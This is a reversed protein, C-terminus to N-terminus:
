LQVQVEVCLCSFAVPLRKLPKFAFYIYQILCSVGEGVSFFAFEGSGEAAVVHM